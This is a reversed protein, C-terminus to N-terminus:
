ANSGKNPIKTQPSIVNKTLSVLQFKPTFYWIFLLILSSIPWGIFWILGRMIADDNNSLDCALWFCPIFHAWFSIIFGLISVQLIGYLWLKSNFCDLNCMLVVKKDCCSGFSV